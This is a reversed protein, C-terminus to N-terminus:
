ISFPWTVSSSIFLEYRWRKTFKRSESLLNLLRSFADTKIDVDFTLNLKEFDAHVPIVLSWSALMQGFHFQSIPCQSGLKQSCALSQSSIFLTASFLYETCLMPQRAPLLWPQFRWVESPSLTQQTAGSDRDLVCLM